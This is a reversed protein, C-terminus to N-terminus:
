RINDGDAGSGEKMVKLSNMQKKGWSGTREHEKKREVLELYYLQSIFFTCKCRGTEKVEIESQWCPCEPRTPDCLCHGKKNLKQVWEDAKFYPNIKFGEKKAYAELKEVSANM